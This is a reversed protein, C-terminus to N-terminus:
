SCGALSYSLQYHKLVHEMLEEESIKGELLNDLQAEVVLGVPAAHQIPTERNQRLYKDLAEFDTNLVPTLEDAAATIAPVMCLERAIRRQTKESLMFNIFRSAAEDNSQPFIGLSCSGEWYKTECLPQPVSFYFNDNLFRKKLPLLCSAGHQMLMKKHIEGNALRLFSISQDFIAGLRSPLMLARKVAVRCHESVIGPTLSKPLGIDRVLDFFRHALYVDEPLRALAIKLKDNFSLASFDAFDNVGMMELYKKNWSIFSFSSCYPIAVELMGPMSECFLASRFNKKDTLSERLSDPIRQLTKAVYEPWLYRVPLHVLDYNGSQFEDWFGTIADRGAQPWAANVKFEHQSHNFEDIVSTWFEIQHPMTEYLLLKVEHKFLFMTSSQGLTFPHINQTPLDIIVDEKNIVTGKPGRCLQESEVFSALAKRITRRNLQLAAALQRESPFPTGNPSDDIFSAVREKLQKYLPKGEGYTINRFYKVVIEDLKM